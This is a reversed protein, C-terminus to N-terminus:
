SVEIGFNFVAVAENKTKSSKYEQKHFFFKEFIEFLIFSLHKQKQKNLLLLYKRDLQVPTMPQLSDGRIIVTLIITMRNFDFVHKIM